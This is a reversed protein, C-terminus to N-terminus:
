QNDATIEMIFLKLFGGDASRDDVRMVKYTRGAYIIKDSDKSLRRTAVTADTYTRLFDTVHEADELQRLDNASLPQPKIILIDTPTIPTGAVYKGESDYTGDSGGTVLSATAFESSDFYDLLSM